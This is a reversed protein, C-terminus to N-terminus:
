SYHEFAIVGFPGDILHDFGPALRSFKDKFEAEIRVFREPSVDIEVAEGFEYGDFSVLVEGLVMYEGSKGDSIVMGDLADNNSHCLDYLEEDFDIKKGCMVYITRTVSM